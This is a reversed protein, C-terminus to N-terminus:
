NCFSECFHMSFDCVNMHGRPLLLSCPLVVLVLLGAGAPSTLTYKTTYSIDLPPKKGELDQVQVGIYKGEVSLAIYGM